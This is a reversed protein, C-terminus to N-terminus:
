IKLATALSLTKLDRAIKDHAMNDMMLHVAFRNARDTAELSLQRLDSACDVAVEQQVRISENYRMIAHHMRIHRILKDNMTNMFNISKHSAPDITDITTRTNITIAAKRHELSEDHYEQEESAHRVKQADINQLDLGIIYRMRQLLIEPKTEDILVSVMMQRIM